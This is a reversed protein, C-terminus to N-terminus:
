RKNKWVYWHPYAYVWYGPKLGKYGAYSRGRWWGYDRCRGDDADKPVYLKHLQNSYKGGQSPSCKSSRARERDSVREAWVYWYPKAYVWYGPPIGTHRKYTGGKWFGYDNCAGYKRADEPVHLKYIQHAYKGGQNPSCAAAAEEALGLSLCAALLLLALHRRFLEM